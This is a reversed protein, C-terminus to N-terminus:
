KGLNALLLSFTIFLGVTTNQLFLAHCVAKNELDIKSIQWGYHAMVGILPIYSILPWHQHLSHFFLCLFSLAYMCTLFIKPRHHFRVATSKINIKQDDKWDQFAYITDYGITWFVGTGYLLILPLTIPRNFVKWVMFVGMNYTVGLFLQPWYTFRKMWPYILILIISIFSIFYTSIPLSLAIILGILLQLILFISAQKKSVRNAALPRGKTRQVHCDYPQDIIDNYTCGAGRMVVAGLFFTIMWKLIPLSIGIFAFTWVCPFFLLWIGIPRNLRCLTIYPWYDTLYRKMTM